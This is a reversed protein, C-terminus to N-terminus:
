DDDFGQVELVDKVDMRKIPAEVIPPPKFYQLMKKDSPVVENISNLV